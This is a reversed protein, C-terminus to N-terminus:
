DLTMEGSGFHLDFHLATQDESAFAFLFIM